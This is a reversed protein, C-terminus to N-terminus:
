SEGGGAGEEEDTWVIPPAVIREGKSTLDVDRREIYGRHRGKTKLYFITSAPAGAKMQRLLQTEAFDLAVDALEEVARRYKRDSKMWRYHSDRGVGAKESAATVIGLTAKLAELMAKKQQRTRGQEKRPKDTM